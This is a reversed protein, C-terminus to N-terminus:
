LGGQHCGQCCSQWGGFNCCGSRPWRIFMLMSEQVRGFASVQYIGTHCVCHGPFHECHCFCKFFCCHVWVYFECSIFCAYLMLLVVFRFVNAYGHVMQVIIVTAGADIDFVVSSWVLKIHWVSCWFPSWPLVVCLMSVDCTVQRFCRM